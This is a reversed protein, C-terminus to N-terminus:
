GRRKGFKVIKEDGKVLDDLHDAWRQLAVAMENRYEFQQYIGIVGRFSGSTHNLLKEVVQVPVGLRQMGSAFVRRLDHTHWPQDPKMTADLAAKIAAFHHRRAFVYPSGATRPQKSILEWAQKSLPLTRSEHNKSREAPLTWTRAQQDLERWEMEAIESRRSGLLLLLRFVDGFPATLTGCAEILRVIEGDSLNRNREKEQSPRTVGSAPSNLIVDRSKLWNFFRSLTALVRNAMVPREEAIREVLDIVDKRKIDHVSRNGWAPLVDRRFIGEAARRTAERRKKAHHQQIFQEFRNKLTDADRSAVELKANRKEATPDIGEAIERRAAAALQRAEALSVTPYRGLTIKLSKGVIRDRVAWSRVGSPQVVLYL